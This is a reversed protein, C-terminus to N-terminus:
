APRDPEPLPAPAAPLRRIRESPRVDAVVDPQDRRPVGIRLPRRCESPLAPEYIWDVAIQIPIRTASDRAGEMPWGRLASQPPRPRPTCVLHHALPPRTSSCGCPPVVSSNLPFLRKRPAQLELLEVLSSALFDICGLPPDSPTAQHRPCKIRQCAPSRKKSTLLAFHFLERQSDGRFKLVSRCGDRM